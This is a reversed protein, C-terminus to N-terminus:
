GSSPPSRHLEESIIQEFRQVPVSGDLPRGDIFFWPTSTLGLDQAAQRDTDLARETSPDVLCSSFHAVDLGLRGATEKLPILALSHQNAYMADHMEWFKGQKAACIGAEAALRADPHVQTLPFNRFVLRVDHPHDSLVRQLSAEAQKCYPCQFDGFEVITIPAGSPGRAPGDAAVSVRYPALLSRIGHKAWLDDYFRRTAEETRQKGLYERVQPAIQEYPQPIRDKNADYFARAETETVVSMKLSALVAETTMGRAKAEMELARGDLLADLQRRLLDHHAQAYKRQLQHLGREYEGELYDFDSQDRAILETETVEERGIVGIKSPTAPSSASIPSGSCSDSSSAAGSYSLSALTASIIAAAAVRLTAASSGTSHPISRLM